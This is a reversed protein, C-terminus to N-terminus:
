VAFAHQRTALAAPIAPGPTVVKPAPPPWPYSPHCWCRCSLDAHRPGGLVCEAVHDRGPAATPQDFLEPEQWTDGYANTRFLEQM